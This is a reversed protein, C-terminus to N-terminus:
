MIFHLLTTTLECVVHTVDCSHGRPHLAMQTCTRCPPLMHHLCHSEVKSCAFLKSDVDSLLDDFNVAQRNIEM